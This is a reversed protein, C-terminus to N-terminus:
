VDLLLRRLHELAAQVSRERVEQRDGPLRIEFARPGVSRAAAVWVTGVPKEETGGGPGAIGTIALSVDAAFLERVGEAMEIATQGSVAGHTALTEARVGLRERKVADAYAVIGGLFYTSAGAADTLRAGLLGGTCSEAVAITRGEGRLLEGVVQALERRGFAYIWPGLRERIADVARDVAAELEDDEIEDDEISSARRAVRLDVGSYSPVLALEVADFPIELDAIRGAIESKEIGTTRILRRHMRSGTQRHADNM